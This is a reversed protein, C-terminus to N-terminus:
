VNASVQRAYQQPTKKRTVQICILKELLRGRLCVKNKRKGYPDEARGTYSANYFGFSCAM